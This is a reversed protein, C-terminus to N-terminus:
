CETPRCSRESASSRNNMGLRSAAEAARRFLTIAESFQQKAEFAHAIELMARTNTSSQRLAEECAAVARASNAALRNCDTVQAQANSVLIGALALGALLSPKLRARRSNGM